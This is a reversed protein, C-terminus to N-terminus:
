RRDPRRPCREDGPRSAGVERRQRNLREILLARDVAFGFGEAFARLTDRDIEDVDRGEFYCDAHLFGIVKDDPM